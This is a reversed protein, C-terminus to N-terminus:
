RLKYEFKFDGNSNSTVFIKQTKESNIFLEITTYIVPFGNPDLIKGVIKLTNKSCNPIINTIVAKAVQVTASNAVGTICNNADIVTVNYVTTQLPSVKISCIKDEQTIVQGDSFYFTYPPTGNFVKATLVTSKEPNQVAYVPTLKVKLDCTNAKFITLTNDLYNPVLLAKADPSWTIVQSLSGANYAAGNNLAIPNFNQDIYYAYLNNTGADVVNFALYRNTSLSAYYQQYNKAFPVIDISKYFNVTIQEPNSINIKFLSITTLNANTVILLYTGDICAFSSFEIDIPNDINSTVLTVLNFEQNISCKNLAYKFILLQSFNSSIEPTVNPSLQFFTVALLQYKVGKSKFAFPSLKLNKVNGELIQYSQDGNKICNKICSNSIFNQPCNFAQLLFKNNKTIAPYSKIGPYVCKLKSNVSLGLVNPTCTRNLFTFNFNESDYNFQTTYGKNALKSGFPNNSVWFLYQGLKNPKKSFQIYYPLSLNQNITKVYTLNPTFNSFLKILYLQNFSLILFFLKIFKSKFQPM